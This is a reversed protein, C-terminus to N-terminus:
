IKCTFLKDYFNIQLNESAIEATFNSGSITGTFDKPLLKKLLFLSGTPLLENNLRSAALLELPDSADRNIGKLFEDPATVAEYEGSPNKYAYLKSDGIFKFYYPIDGRELQ